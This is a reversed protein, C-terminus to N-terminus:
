IATVFDHSIANGMRSRTFDCRSEGFSGCCDVKKEVKRRKM